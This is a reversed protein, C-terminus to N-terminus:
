IQYDAFVRLANFVFSFGTTEIVVPNRRKPQPLLIQVRVIDALVIPIVVNKLVTRLNM